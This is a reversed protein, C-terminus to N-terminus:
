RRRPLRPPAPPPPPDRLDNLDIGNAKLEVLKDISVKYGARTFQQAYQPTIALARMQVYDDLDGNYGAARM